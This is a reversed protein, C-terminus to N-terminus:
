NERGNSSSCEQPFGSTKRVKVSLTWKRLSVENEQGSGLSEPDGGCAMTKRRVGRTWVVGKNM